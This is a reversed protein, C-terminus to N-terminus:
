VPENKGRVGHKFVYRRVRHQAGIREILMATKLRKSFIKHRKCSDARKRRRDYFAPMAIIHGIIVLMKVPQILESLFPLGFQERQKRALACCTPIGRKTQKRIGAAVM